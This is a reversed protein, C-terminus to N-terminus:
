TSWSTTGLGRFSLKPSTPSWRIWTRGTAQLTGTTTAPTAPGTFRPPHRLRNLSLCPCAGTEMSSHPSPIAMASVRLTSQPLLAGASTALYRSRTAPKLCSAMSCPFTSRAAWRAGVLQSYQNPGAINIDLIGTATQTCSVTLAGPADPSDGPYVTAANILNATVAGIGDLMGGNLYLYDANLTGDVTTTGGSQTFNGSFGSAFGDLIGAAVSLTVGTGITVTGSNTFGNPAAIVLTGSGANDELVGQNDVGVYSDIYSDSGALFTIGPGFILPADSLDILNDYNQGFQITGTGNITPAVPDNDGGLALYTPYATGGLEILGNLTLGGLVSVSAGYFQTMDLTGDLTVGNLTGGEGTAVLDNSGSTTITGGDITGGDLTMFGTAAGLALIGGSMPNDAPNNDLVGTLDFNSGPGIVGAAVLSDFADTTFIGGFNVTSGAGISFTGADSWDYSPASPDDPSINIPSGLDLTSPDVAITGRNTWSGYLNLTADTARIQGTSSNTWGFGELTATAKNSVLISGDNVWAAVNITLQGGNTSEEITGQNDIPGSTTYYDSISSSHGGQITIGSGFTLTGASLNYLNDTYSDTQGFEITGTGAVTMGSADNQYGFGLSASNSNGGLEVTGNVTIADVVQASAGNNQTMDLTGDLTM